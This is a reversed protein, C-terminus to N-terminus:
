FEKDKFIESNFLESEAEKELDHLIKAWKPMHSWIEEDSSNM